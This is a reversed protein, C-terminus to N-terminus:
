AFFRRVTEVVYHQQEEALEPYMPLALTERAAREAEPFDGQKHGLHRFCDQLHLPVPYYVKTGVGHQKLHAALPDRQGDPVRVVYQHFIHVADPRVHLPTVPEALGAETLLRHRRLVAGAKDPRVVKIFM